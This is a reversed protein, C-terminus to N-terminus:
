IHVVKMAELKQHTEPSLEGMGCTGGTCIIPIPIADQAFLNKKLTPSLAIWDNIGTKEHTARIPHRPYPNEGGLAM